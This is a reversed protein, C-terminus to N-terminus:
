IDTHTSSVTNWVSKSPDVLTKATCGSFTMAVLIIAFITILVRKM